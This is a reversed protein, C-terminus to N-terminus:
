FKLLEATRGDHEGEYFVHLAREYPSGKESVLHFLTMSSRFKLEDTAGLIDGVSRGEHGLMVATCEGLRWGLLPHELYAIAEARSRIAFRQSMSSAGLGTLQPFIYWMWHSRKQGDRLEAIVQNYISAQAEVFRTLDFSVFQENM